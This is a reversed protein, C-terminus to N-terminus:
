RKPFYTDFLAKTDLKHGIGMTELDRLKALLRHVEALSEEHSKLFEAKQKAANAAMRDIEDLGALVSKLALRRHYTISDTFMIASGDALNLEIDWGKYHFQYKSITVAAKFDVGITCDLVNGSEPVINAQKFLYEVFIRASQEITVSMQKDKTM